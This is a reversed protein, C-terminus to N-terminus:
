GVTPVQLASEFCGELCHAAPIPLEGGVLLRQDAKQEVLGLGLALLGAKTEM